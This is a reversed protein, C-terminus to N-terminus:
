IAPLNDLVGGDVLLRGHLAVPPTLGPVSMPTSATLRTGDVIPTGSGGM